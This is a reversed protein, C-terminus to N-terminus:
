DSLSTQLLRVNMGDGLITTAVSATSFLININTTLLGEM